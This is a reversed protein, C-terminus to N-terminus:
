VSQPGDHFLIMGFFTVTDPGNVYKLGTNQTTQYVDVGYAELSSLAKQPM